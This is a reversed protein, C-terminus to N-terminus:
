SPPAPSLRPPLSPSPSPSMSIFTICSDVVAGLEEAGAEESVNDDNEEGDGDDEGDPTLKLANPKVLLIFLSRSVSVSPLLSSPLSPSLSLTLSFLLLLLSLRSLLPLRLRFSAIHPSANHPLQLHTRLAQQRATRTNVRLSISAEETLCMRQTHLMCSWM